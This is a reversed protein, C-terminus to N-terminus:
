GHSRLHVLVYQQIEQPLTYQFLDSHSLIPAQADRLSQLSNWSKLTIFSGNKSLAPLAREYDDELSGLARCSIIDVDRFDSKEFTDEVVEFNNLQLDNAISRLFVCRKKRPEVAFFKIRPLCIALPIVPFGAGSGMDAWEGQDPLIEKSKLFILPILSDAIHRTLLKKSDNASVLNTIRNHEIVCDCFSFLKSLKSDDLSLNWANLFELFLQEQNLDHYHKV